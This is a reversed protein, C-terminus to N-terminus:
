IIISVEGYHHHESIYVFSPSIQCRATSLIQPVKSPRCYYNTKYNKYHNFVLMARVLPVKLGWFAGFTGWVGLRLGYHPFSIILSPLSFPLSLSPFLPPSPSFPLFPYPFLVLFPSPLFLPLLPLLFSLSLPRQEDGNVPSKQIRGHSVGEAHLYVSLIGGSMIGWSYFGERVFDGRDYSLIGM